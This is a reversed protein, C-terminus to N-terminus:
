TNYIHINIPYKFTVCCCRQSFVDIFSFSSLCKYLFSIIIILVYVYMLVGFTVNHICVYKRM